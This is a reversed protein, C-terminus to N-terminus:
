VWIYIYTYLHIHMYLYMYNCIGLFLYICAYRYICIYSCMHFPFIYIYTYLYTDINACLINVYIYLYPCIYVFMSAYIYTDVSTFICIYICIFICIKIYMYMCICIYVDIYACIYICKNEMSCDRTICIIRRLFGCNCLNWWYIFGGCNSGRTYNKIRHSEWFSNFRWLQFYGLLVLNCSEPVIQKKPEKISRKKMAKFISGSTM